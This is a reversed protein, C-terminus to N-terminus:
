VFLARRVNAAFLWGFARLGLVGGAKVLVVAARAVRVVRGCGESLLRHRSWARCFYCFVGIKGTRIKQVRMQYSKMRLTPHRTTLTLIDLLKSVGFTRRRVTVRVWSLTKFSIGHTESVRM